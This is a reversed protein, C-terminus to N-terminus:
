IQHKSLFNQHRINQSFIRIDSTKAVFRINLPSNNNEVNRGCDADGTVRRIVGNCLQSPNPAMIMTINRAYNDPVTSVTPM